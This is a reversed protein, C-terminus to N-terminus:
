LHLLALEPWLNQKKETETRSGDNVKGTLKHRKFFFLFFFPHVKHSDTPSPFFFILRDFAIIPMRLLNYLLKFLSQEGEQVDTLISPPACAHGPM